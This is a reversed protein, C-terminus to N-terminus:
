KAREKYMRFAKLACEERRRIVDHLDDQDANRYAERLEEEIHNWEEGELPCGEPWVVGLRRSSELLLADAKEEFHLRELLEAKHTRLEERLDDTLRARNPFLTKVVLDPGDREILVFHLDLESRLEETTM